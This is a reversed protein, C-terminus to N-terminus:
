LETLDTSNKWSDFKGSDPWFYEPIKIGVLAGLLMHNDTTYVVHFNLM